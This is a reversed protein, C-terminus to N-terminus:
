ASFVAISFAMEHSSAFSSQRLGRSMHSALRENVGNAVRMYRVFAYPQHMRSDRPEVSLPAELYQPYRAMTAQHAFDSQLM